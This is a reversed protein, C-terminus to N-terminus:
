KKLLQQFRADAARIYGAPDKLWRAQIDADYNLYLKGDRVTFQDPEVKLLAGQTVGMHQAIATTTIEGPDHGAALEIVAEM